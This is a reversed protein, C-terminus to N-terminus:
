QGFWPSITMSICDLNKSLGKGSMLSCTFFNIRFIPACISSHRLKHHSTTNISNSPGHLRVIGCKFFAASLHLCFFKGFLWPVDWVINFSSLLTRDSYLSLKFYRFVFLSKKKCLIHLIYVSLQTFAYKQTDSHAVSKSFIPQLIFISTPKVRFVLLPLGSWFIPLNFAGQLIIWAGLM